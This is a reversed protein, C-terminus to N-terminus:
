CRWLASMECGCRVYIESPILSPGQSGSSLQTQNPHAQGITSVARAADYPPQILPGDDWPFSPGNPYSTFADYAHVDQLQLSSEVNTPPPSVGISSRLGGTELRDYTEDGCVVFCHPPNWEAPRTTHTPDLSEALSSWEHNHQQVYHTSGYNTPSSDFNDQTPGRGHSPGHPASHHQGSYPPRSGDTAYVFFARDQIQM